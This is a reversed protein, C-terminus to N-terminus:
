PPIKKGKLSSWMEKGLYDDKRERLIKKKEWLIMKRKLSSWREKGLPDDKKVAEKWRM